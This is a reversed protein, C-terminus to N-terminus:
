DQRVAAGVAQAASGPWEPSQQPPGREVHEARYAAIVEACEADAGEARQASADCTQRREQRGLEVVAHEVRGSPQVHAQREIVAYEVSGCGSHRQGVHFVNQEALDGSYAGFGGPVPSDRLALACLCLALVGEMFRSGSTSSM